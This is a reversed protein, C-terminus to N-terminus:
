MDSGHENVPRKLQLSTHYQEVTHRYRVQLMDDNFITRISKGIPDDRLESMCVRLCSGSDGGGFDHRYVECVKPLIIVKRNSDVVLQNRLFDVACENLQEDLTHERLVPVSRPCATDATNVCFALRVDKFSLSYMRYASISKKPPEIYPPKSLGAKSLRGRLVCCHLEALSFVDGGVEYCSTRIFHGISRKHLPGNISLLMAHQLIVHYLNVFLCFAAKSTFDMEHLPLLRLHSAADLFQIFLEPEGELTKLDFSLTAALMREVFEYGNQVDGFPTSTELDFVMRRSNLIARDKSKQNSVIKAWKGRGPSIAAESLSQFGQWFRAKRLEKENLEASVEVEKVHDAIATEVRQGFTDRAEEDRFAMYHCLWATELVLLPFGPLPSSDTSNLPRVNTIDIYSIELCPSKSLPAYFSVCSKYVGCWEERWHSEWLCRAVLSDHLKEGRSIPSVGIHVNNGQLFWRDQETDISLQKKLVDNFRNWTPSAPDVNSMRSLVSSAIRCSQEPACLEGASFESIMKMHQSRGIKKMGKFVQVHKDQDQRKSEKFLNKKVRPEKGPQKKSKRTIPGIVAKGTNVSGRVVKKSQRMAMKGTGVAVKGTGVAVKGTLKGTNVVGKGTLKATGVVAKGTLKGTEVVVKGATKGTAVTVDKAKKAVKGILNKGRKMRGSGGHKSTEAEPEPESELEAESEADAEDPSAPDNWEEQSGDTQLDTCFDEGSNISDAEMAEFDEYKISDDDFSAGQSLFNDSSKITRPSLSLAVEREPSLPMSISDASSSRTKLKSPKPTEKVHYSTPPIRKDSGRLTDQQGSPKSVSRHTLGFRMIPALERGTRLRVSTTTANSQFGDDFTPSSSPIEPRADQEDDPHIIRVVYTLQRIRETRNMMEIWAPVDLRYHDRSFTLSKRADTSLDADGIRSPPLERPSAGNTSPASAIADDAYLVLPVMRTKSDTSVVPADIEAGEGDDSDSDDDADNATQTKSSNPNCLALLRGGYTPSPDTAVGVYYNSWRKHRLKFASGLSVYSSEADKEVNCITFYGNKKPLRTVWKLWWGRHITLYRTEYDNRRKLLVKFLVSDGTKILKNRRSKRAKEITVVCDAQNQLVAFGAGTSIAFDSTSDDDDNQEVFQKLTIRDGSQLYLGQGLEAATAADDDENEMEDLEASSQKPALQESSTTLQAKPSTSSPIRDTDDLDSVQDIEDDISSEKKQITPMKPAEDEILPAYRVTPEGSSKEAAAAAANKKKIAKQQSIWEKAWKGVGAKQNNCLELKIVETIDKRYHKENAKDNDIMYFSLVMAQDGLVSSLLFPRIGPLNIVKWELFDVYASWLAMTYTDSTNWKIFGGKKRKKIHDPAEYIEAGLKPPVEGPKTVVLRDLSGEVTFSMHPKEYKGDASFKSGMTSYHFTPNTSKMFAMSAGVFARQILGMKIAQDLECSFYFSKNPPVKKVRMQYQFEFRRQRGRLYDVMNDNSPTGGPAKPDDVDPTRIIVLMEMDFFENSIRTPKAANPLIRVKTSGDLIYFPALSKHPLLDEDTLTKSPTALTSTNTATSMMSHMTSEMSLARTTTEDITSVPPPSTVRLNSTSPLPSTAALTNPISAADDYLSEGMFSSERSVINNDSANATNKDNHVSENHLMTSTSDDPFTMQRSSIKVLDASNPQMLQRQQQQEKKLRKSSKRQQMWSTVLIIVCTIWAISSYEFCKNVVTSFQPNMTGLLYAGCLFVIQRLAREVMNVSVDSAPDHVVMANSNSAIMTQSAGAV